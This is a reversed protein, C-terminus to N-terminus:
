VGSLLGIESNWYMEAAGPGMVTQGEFSFLPPLSFGKKKKFVALYTSRRKRQLECFINIGCERLACSLCSMSSPEGGERGHEKTGAQRSVSLFSLIISLALRGRYSAQRDSSLINQLRLSLQTSM